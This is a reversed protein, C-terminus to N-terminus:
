LKLVNCPKIGQHITGEWHYTKELSGRNAKRTSDYGHYMLQTQYSFSSQSQCFFVLRTSSIYMPYHINSDTEFLLSLSLPNADWLSITADDTLIFTLTIVFDSDREHKTNVTLLMSRRRYGNSDGKRGIRYTLHQKM